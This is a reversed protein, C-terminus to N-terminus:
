RPYYGHWGHGQLPDANEIQSDPLDAAGGGAEPRGECLEGYAM